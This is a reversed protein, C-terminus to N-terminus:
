FPYLIFKRPDFSPLIELGYKQVVYAQLALVENRTFYCNIHTQRLPDPYGNFIPCLSYLRNLEEASDFGRRPYVDVRFTFGHPEFKVAYVEGLIREALDERILEHVKIFAPKYVDSLLDILRWGDLTRLRSTKSVGFVANEAKYARELADELVKRPTDVTDGTLSGDWLVIGNRFYGATVVQLYREVLNRVRDVMKYIKPVKRDDVEPLDLLRRLYNYIYGKNEETINVIFPGLRAIDYKEGNFVAISARYAAVIGRETEGIRFSSTDVALIMCKDYERQNLEDYRDPVDELVITEDVQLEEYKDMEEDNSPIFNSIEIYRPKFKKVDSLEKELNHFFDKLKLDELIELM